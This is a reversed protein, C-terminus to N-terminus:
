SMMMRAGTSVIESRNGRLVEEGNFMGALAETPNNESGTRTAGLPRTIKDNLRRAHAIVVRKQRLLRNHRRRGAQVHRGIFKM